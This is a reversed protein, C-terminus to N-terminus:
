ARASPSGFKVAVTGSQYHLSDVIVSQYHLSDVIDCVAVMVPFHLTNRSSRLNM